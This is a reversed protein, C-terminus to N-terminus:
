LPLVEPLMMLGKWLCWLLFAIASAGLFFFLVDAQRKNADHVYRDPEGVDPADEKYRCRKCIREAEETRGDYVPRYEPYECNPCDDYPVREVLFPPYNARVRRVPEWRYEASPMKM